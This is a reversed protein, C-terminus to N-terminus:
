AAAGPQSGTGIGRQRAAIEAVARAGAAGSHGLNYLCRERLAAIRGRFREPDRVLERILMPARALEGPAMVMGLEKRVESEFPEIGLARWNPNRSKLPLDIFLVPKELGLGYDLGAGSWDTIMVHSDLLSDSESMREVLRFRPHGAHRATIRDIVEPTQWRTQFHPRLTLRFGAELLIGVLEAGCTNLITQPGWSPALLVHLDAPTAIAPPDRREAMLQEVRHYGHPILEKPRLGAQEERRRIERLQHPGACLIADYYDYSDERDAVHTSVLSHNMFVYHVPHISRRLNLVQLDLLQTLLVDARLFQFFWTRLWGKGICFPLIGPHGQHLGPDEPDSSVYCLVLGLPGALELVVPRFHHWDQGSEAYLVLNRAAAPLRGFRRYDSWHRPM